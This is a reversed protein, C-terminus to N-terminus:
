SSFQDLKKGKLNPMIIISLRNTYWLSGDKRGQQTGKEISIKLLSELLEPIVQMTYIGIDMDYEVKSVAHMFPKVGVLQHSGIYLWLGKAPSSTERCSSGPYVEECAINWRQYQSSLCTMRFVSVEYRPLLGQCIKIIISLYQIDRFWFLFTQTAQM